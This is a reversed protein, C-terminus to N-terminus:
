RTCSAAADLTALTASAAPAAATAAAILPRCDDADNSSSTSSRSSASAADECRRRQTQSREQKGCDAVPLKCGACPLVVHRMGGAAHRVEQVKNGAPQQDAYWALTQGDAEAQLDNAAITQEARRSCELRAVIM